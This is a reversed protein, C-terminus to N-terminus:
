ETVEKSKLKILARNLRTTSIIKKGKVLMLKLTKETVGAAEAVAAVGHKEVMTLIQDELM